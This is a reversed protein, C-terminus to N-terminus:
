LPCTYWEISDCHDQGRQVTRRTSTHAKAPRHSTFRKCISCEYWSRAYRGSKWFGALTLSYERCPLYRVSASKTGFYHLLSQQVHMATYNKTKKHTSHLPVAPLQLHRFMAGPTTHFLVHKRDCSESRAVHVCCSCPYLVSCRSGLGNLGTM